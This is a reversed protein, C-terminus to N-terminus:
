KEVRVQLRTKMEKICIGYPRIHNHSPTMFYEAGARTEEKPIIKSKSLNVRNQLVMRYTRGEIQVDQAYCMAVEIDPTSYHGKGYRDRELKSNDYGSEAIGKVGLKSTGHYSVAWEGPSSHRRPGLEGLWVDDEYKGKVKLAIRKWGYPRKYMYSGRKSIRDDQKITYDRDHQPDLFKDDLFYFRCEGGSVAEVITVTSETQIGYDILMKDDELLKKGAFILQMYKRKIRFRRHNINWKLDHVTAYSNLSVIQEYKFGIVHITFYESNFTTLSNSTEPYDTQNDYPVLPLYEPNRYSIRENEEVGNGKAVIRFSEEDIKTALLREPDTTSM